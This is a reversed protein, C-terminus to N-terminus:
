KKELVCVLEGTKSSVLKGFAYMRWDPIREVSNWLIDWRELIYHPGLVSFAPHIPIHIPIHFIIGKTVVSVPQIDSM